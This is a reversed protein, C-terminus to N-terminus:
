KELLVKLIEKWKQKMLLRLCLRLDYDNVWPMSLHDNISGPEIKTEVPNDLTSTISAQTNEVVTINGSTNILAVTSISIYTPSIIDSSSGDKKLSNLIDLLPM